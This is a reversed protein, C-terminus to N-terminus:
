AIESVPGAVGSGEERAARSIEPVMRPDVLDPGGLMPVPVEPIPDKQYWRVQNLKENQIKEHVTMYAQM